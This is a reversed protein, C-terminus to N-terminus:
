GEEVLDVELIAPDEVRVVQDEGKSIVQLRKLQGEPNTPHFNTGKTLHIGLNELVLNAAVEERREELDERKIPDGSEAKTQPPPPSVWLTRRSGSPSTRTM